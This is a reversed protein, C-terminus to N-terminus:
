AARSPIKLHRDIRGDHGVRPAQARHAVIPVSPALSMAAGAELLQRDRKAKIRLTRSIRKAMNREGKSM